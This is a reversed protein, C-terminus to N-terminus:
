GARRGAGPRHRVGCLRFERHRARCSRGLRDVQRAVGRRPDPLCPHTARDRRDAQPELRRLHPRHGPLGGGPEPERDARRGDQGGLVLRRAPEHLGQSPEGGGWLVLDARRAARMLRLLDLPSLSHIDQDLADADFWAGDREPQQSVITIRAEPLTDRVLAVLGAAIARDGRNAALDSNIVLVKM